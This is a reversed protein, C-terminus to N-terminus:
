KGEQEPHRKKQDKSIKDLVKRSLVVLGNTRCDWISLYNASIVSHQKWRAMKEYLMLTCIDTATIFDGTGPLHSHMTVAEAKGDAAPPGYDMSILNRHLKKMSKVKNDADFELLYDNGFLVVNGQQPGTLVYVNRENGTVLPIINFNTNQYRKFLTDQQIIGLAKTRIIYLQQEQETFRREALEVHATKPNYTSDFAIAGIVFPIDTKAFFVCTAGAATPYSFYGGIKERNPYQALFLDTGYWSAMESRYLRKGEAVIPQTLKATKSQAFASLTFLLLQMVFLAPKM